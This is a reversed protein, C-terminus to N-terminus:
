CKKGQPNLNVYRIVLYIGGWPLREGCGGWGVGWGVGWSVGVVVGSCGKRLFSMARVLGFLVDRARFNFPTDSGRGAQTDRHTETDRQTDRYRETHHRFVSDFEVTKRGDRERDEEQRQIRGPHFQTITRISHTICTLNSTFIM